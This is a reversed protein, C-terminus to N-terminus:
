NIQERGGHVEPTGKTQMLAIPDEGWARRLDTELQEQRSRTWPAYHRETVRISQHGLLVSVRDLPVGTLLLEVAFTDRFRHAHGGSVGALSFLTQLSQQLVGVATHLKSEGSWFFFRESTKPAAEIDRVVFDPLICQVPVGTKQTYLFLKNGKLRDPGCQVADGIRMGSYRLLLVFARLRQACAAGARNAYKDLAALIKMMEECTFPLTPRNPVKPAKMHTAPNTAVWKRSECFRLFAKLRELKKLASRPGEKWESRFQDLIPLDLEKLYRLGNRKAFDEIRNFLLRYKYITCNSLGRSRVDALFYECAQGLTIPEAKNEPQAQLSEWERITEQAKQWDCTGLSQRIEEGNLHGDV